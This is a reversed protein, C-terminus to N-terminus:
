PLYIYYILNFHPPEYPYSPQQPGSSHVHSVDAYAHFCNVQGFNSTSQYVGGTGHRHRWTNTSSNTSTHTLANVDSYSPPIEKHSAANGIRIYRDTLDPTVYGNVTQGNCCYWNPPVNNSTFGFIMGSSIYVNEQQVIYTNLKMYKKNQTLSLTMTHIHLEGDATTKTRGTPGIYVNEAGTQAYTQGPSVHSHEGSASSTTTIEHTTKGGILGVLNDDSTVYLYLGNYISAVVGDNNTINEAFVITGIPLKFFTSSGTKRKYLKTKLHRPLFSTSQVSSSSASHSHDGSNTAEIVNGTTILSQYPNAYASGVNYNHNGNSSFNFAISANTGMSLTNVLDSYYNKSKVFAEGVNYPVWDSDSVLQISTIVFNDSAEARLKEGNNNYDTSFLMGSVGFM